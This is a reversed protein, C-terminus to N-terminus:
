EGGVGAIRARIRDQLSPQPVESGDPLTRKGKQFVHRGIAAKSGADLGVAAFISVLFDLLRGQYESGVGSDAYDGRRTVGPDSPFQAFWIVLLAGLFPSERRDNYRPRGGKSSDPLLGALAHTVGWRLTRLTRQVEIPDADSGASELADLIRCRTKNAMADLSDLLDELRVFLEALDETEDADRLPSPPLHERFSLADHIEDIIGDYGERPFEYKALVEFVPDRWPHGTGATTYGGHDRRNPRRARREPL